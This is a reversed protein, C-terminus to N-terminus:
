GQVGGAFTLWEVTGRNGSEAVVCRAVVRNAIVFAAAATGDAAAAKMLRGASSSDPVLQDGAVVGTALKVNDQIGGTRVRVPDGSAASTLAGGRTEGGGGAAATSKKVHLGMGKTTVATDIILHDGEAVAETAFLTIETTNARSTDASPVDPVHNIAIM